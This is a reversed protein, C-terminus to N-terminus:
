SFAEIREYRIFALKKTRVIKRIYIHCSCGLCNEMLDYVSTASAIYLYLFIIHVHLTHHCFLKSSQRIIHTREYEKVGSITTRLTRPYSLAIRITRYALSVRSDDRASRLHSIACNHSSFVKKLMEYIRLIHTLM